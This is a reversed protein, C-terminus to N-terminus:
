AGRSSLVVEKALERYRCVGNAWRMQEPTGCEPELLRRSAVLICACLARSTAVNLRNPNYLFGMGRPANEASSSAMSYIVVPAQQGQFRDVTGVAVGTPMRSTLAAVQANYPAVVMINSPQLAKAAGKSDTWRAGPALLSEIIGKIAEVEEPASNQNGEHDVPVFFLGSGDFPTGGSLAQRQLGERSTLRNEYFVESTFGCIRPHLRWTEDLFLGAEDPMTKHGDLIHVLAAVEAGEPHAGRQPQELQQPDGLLVINRASRAAALAHALSM